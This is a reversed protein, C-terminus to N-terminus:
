THEESRQLSIQLKSLNNVTVNKAQYGVSTFILINGISARISFNGNEDSVTAVNQTSNHVSVGTLPAEDEGKVQGNLMSQAFLNGQILLLFILLVLSKAITFDTRIM